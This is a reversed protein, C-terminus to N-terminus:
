RMLIRFYHKQGTPLSNLPKNIKRKLLEFLLEISDISRIGSIDQIFDEISIIEPAIINNTVAKKLAEILFIKARKNPLVVIINNLQEGYKQIIETAIKDLFTNNTMTYFYFFGNM